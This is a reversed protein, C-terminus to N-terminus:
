KNIRNQNDDEFLRKLTLKEEDTLPKTSMDAFLVSAKEEDSMRAWEDELPIWQNSM